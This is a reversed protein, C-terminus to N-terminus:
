GRGHLPVRRGPHQGPVATGGRARVPGPQSRGRGEEPGPNRISAAPTPGAEAPARRGPRAAAPPARCRHCRRPARRGPAAADVVPAPPLPPQGAARRRAAGSRARRRALAALTGDSPRRALTTQLMITGIMREAACAAGAPLATENAPGYDRLVYRVIGGRDILVTMPLNDVEYSRAVGKAPDLLMPFGVGASHAFELARKPDDDVGVGFMQLGASRYTVFSRDLARWSRAARRAAAAGSASCWWRAATSPSACM